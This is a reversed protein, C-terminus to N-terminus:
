RTLGNIPAKCFEMTRVIRFPGVKYTNEAVHLLVSITKESAPVASTSLVLYDKPNAVIVQLLGLCNSVGQMVLPCYKVNKLTSKRM